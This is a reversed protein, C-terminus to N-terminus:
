ESTSANKDNNEKIIRTAELLATRRIFESYSSYSELKAAIKLKELEDEDIRISISTSKSM